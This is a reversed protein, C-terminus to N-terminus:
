GVHPQHPALHPNNREFKLLDGGRPYHLAGVYVRNKTSLFQFCGHQRSKCSDCYTGFFFHIFNICEKLLVHVM